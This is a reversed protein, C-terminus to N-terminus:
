PPPFTSVCCTARDFELPRGRQDRGRMLVSPHCVPLTPLPSSEPFSAPPPSLFLLPLPLTFHAGSPGEASLNPTASIHKLAHHQYFLAEPSSPQTPSICTIPLQPAVPQQTFGGRVMSAWYSPSNRSDLQSQLAPTRPTAVAVWGGVWLDVALVRRVKCIERVQDCGTHTSFYGWLFGALPQHSLVTMLHLSLTLPQWVGPVTGSDQQRHRCFKVSWRVHLSRWTVANCVSLAHLAFYLFFYFFYFSYVQCM